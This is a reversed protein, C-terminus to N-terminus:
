SEPVLISEQFNGESLRYGRVEPRNGEGALSVILYIFEGGVAEALDTKSPVPASKPHSHYAGVVELHDMRATRLAAFHDAPDVRYRVPSRHLNAARYSGVIVDPLGLLLGCCELPAADRAHAILEDVVAQRIRV